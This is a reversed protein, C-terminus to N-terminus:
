QIIIFLSYCYHYSESVQMCTRVKAAAFGETGKSTTAQYRLGVDDAAETM